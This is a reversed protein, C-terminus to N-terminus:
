EIGNARSPTASRQQVKPTSDMGIEICPRRQSSFHYCCNCSSHFPALIPPSNLELDAIETAISTSLRCPYMIPKTGIHSRFSKRQLVLRVITNEGLGDLLSIYRKSSLSSFSFLHRFLPQDHLSQVFLGALAYCCTTLQSSLLLLTAALNCSTHCTHIHLNSAGGARSCYYHSPRANPSVRRVGQTVVV